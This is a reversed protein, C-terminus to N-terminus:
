AKRRRRALLALAGGGLALMTGPEPVATMEYAFNRQPNLGAGTGVGVNNTGVTPGTTTFFWRGTGTTTTMQVFGKSAVTFNAGLTITWIFDGASGLGVSFANVFAQNQDFFDFRVVDGVAGVGGVFKFEALNFTPSGVITEYDDFGHVGANRGFASYPGTLGSYTAFTANACTALMSLGLITLLNRKM